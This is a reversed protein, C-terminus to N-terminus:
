YGIACGDKRPDSAGELIGSPHIQIAQAGGIPVDATVVNHGMDSLEQAVNPAYTNELTLTDGEAFARPADLATQLDMGYDFLNSLVRAHGAAQYQGGMVGFSLGPAGERTLMAPIITHLPRKAAGLENPHGKILNFGAGRNHFLIGFKESALGSGFGHFISYILSVAMRDRDVVTIYVTDKHVAEHVREPHSLVTDLRIEDALSKALDRSMFVEPDDMYAPDALFRNRCAYALKVAEAEIHARTSGLPDLSSLDFHSLINLILVAISGQGNPPHEHLTHDYFSATLPTTPDALAAAFDSMQHDGGFKRLSSCMDEAVEGEYFGCAGEKAIKRLVEAQKPARFIQGVSPAQGNILFHDRAAGSLNGALAAWDYAARPAVPVGRESYDIAPQLTADIGLKGYAESLHCFGSVATPITVSYPHHLPMTSHGEDRLRAADVAAPARGSANVGEVTGGKNQHILAFCDGGLGTMQPECINLVLAGAIAADAANGGRKLIDVAAQAAIPHSTACIGHEAFVASRGAAQFNRM